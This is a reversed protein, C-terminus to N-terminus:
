DELNIPLTSCGNPSRIHLIESITPAIATVDIPTDIKQAKVHPAMLMFPAKIANYRVYDRRTSNEYVIEWGPTIEIFVDGSYKPSLSARLKRSQEDNPHLLVHDYTHVDHVGEMDMLFQASEERIANLDISHDKILERNLYIQNNDFGLVWDGNGYMAMLYMNLLSVARHPYFEGAGLKYYDQERGEGSFYGTSTIYLVVNDLGVAKDIEAFLRSLEADLRVYADQIELSYEQVTGNNYPALTYSINLMDLYGRNGMACRKIIDISMDTVRSNIFPTTKYEKVWDADKTSLIHAFSSYDIHYPLATYQSGKYLPSWVNNSIIEKEPSHLYMPHVAFSPADYYYTSTVWRGSEDDVWLASNSIHGAALIAMTADPAVSYVRGMDKSILKVEDSLTSVKLAEASFTDDTANGMYRDDYLLYRKQRNTRDFIQESVVGNYFPTTGTHIAAVTSAKNLHAFNYVVNDCVVGQQMIHKFGTESLLPQLAELYDSRLQDITIGIVLQPTGPAIQASIPLAVLSVLISVIRKKM